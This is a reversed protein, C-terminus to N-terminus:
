SKRKRQNHLTFNFGYKVSLNHLTTYVTQRSVGAQKAVNAISLVRDEGCLQYIRLETATMKQLASNQKKLLTIENRFKDTKENKLAKSVAQRTIGKKAAFASQNEGLYIEHMTVDFTLPSSFYLEAIKRATEQQIKRAFSIQTYDKADVNSEIHDDYEILWNKGHIRQNEAKKEKIVNIGSEQLECPHECKSCDIGYCPYPNYLPCTLDTCASCDAASCKKHTKKRM